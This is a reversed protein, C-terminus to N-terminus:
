LGLGEFSSTYMALFKPLVLLIGMLPLIFMIVTAIMTWLFYKRTKEVSKYIEGLTKDQQDLRDKIEQDM